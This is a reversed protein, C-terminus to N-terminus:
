VAVPDKVASSLLHDRGHEELGRKAVTFRQRDSHILGDMELRALATPKEFLWSENCVINHSRSVRESVVPLVVLRLRYRRGGGVICVAPASSVRWIRCSWVPDPPNGLNGRLQAGRPAEAASSLGM